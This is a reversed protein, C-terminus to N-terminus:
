VEKVPTLTNLAAHIMGGTVSAEPLRGTEDAERACYHASGCAELIVVAAPQRQMFQVFQSRSLKKRFRLEGTMLTGRLVIINKALDVGIMTDKM